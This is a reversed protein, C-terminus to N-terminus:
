RRRVLAVLLGVVGLLVAAGGGGVGIGDTSTTHPKATPPATSDAEVTVTATRNELRFVHQGLGVPTTLYTITREEHPALEVVRTEVPQGNRYLTLNAMAPLSHENRVRATVSVAGQTRERGTRTATVTTVTPKVPRHVSVAVEEGGVSLTYEGARTFTRTFTLTTSEGSRLRGTRQQRPTGNVLLRAEYEGAAGGTNSVRVDVALTEGVALSIPRESGLSGNRLPGSVRYGSRNEPDPLAYSIRAPTPGFAHGHAAQEWMSPTAQSTTYRDVLTAATTGGVQGVMERFAPATVPGDHRNMRSLVGQLSRTRDTALRLQRDVEGAVLAGKAYPTAGDWTAPDALVATTDRQRTGLALRRHFADFGIRGQGLTLLAAYYTASAETFWRVDTTAAYDQRTHVYEHLWVNDATDLRESDRVWMDSEGTQLGRISWRVSRTPAAVVFVQDDRDGVQLTESASAMSDLIAEPPEALRARDPVVLRVTQDHATRTVDHYEGLFAIREGVAGAGAVTTTRSFGVPGGSTWGWGAAVSPTRVIAWPGADVFTYGDGQAIPGTTDLTENVSVRYTLSPVATRRDWVYETGNRHVFGDTATVTAGAPVRTRLSAVPEPLSYRLTVTIEGPRSPTLHLEQTLDVTPSAAEVSSRARAGREPSGATTTFSRDHGATAIATGVPICGSVVLLVALLCTAGIQDPLHCADM